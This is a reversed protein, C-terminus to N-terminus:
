ELTLYLDFNDPKYLEYADILIYYTGSVPASIVAREPANLTAGDVSILGLDPGFILMDIDSTPFKSWDRNWTLDFTALNIGEPVEVPVVLTDGSKIVSNSVRVGSQERNNERTVRVKFSVQSENSYDGILSLRMLGPEMPMNDWPIGWFTWPGDEVVIDFSDGYVKKKIKFDYDKSPVFIVIKSKGLIEKSINKFYPLAKTLDEFGYFVINNEPSLSNTETDLTKANEGSIFDDNRCMDCLKKLCSDCFVNGCKSCILYKKPFNGCKTCRFM